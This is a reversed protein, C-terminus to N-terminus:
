SFLNLFDILAKSKHAFGGAQIHGGGGNAKCIEGVNIGDKRSRLSYSSGTDIVYIEIDPYKEEMKEFLETIYLASFVFATKYTRDNFTFETLNVHSVKEECYNNVKTKFIKLIMKDLETFLLEKEVIPKDNEDLKFLHNSKLISLKEISEDFHNDFEDKGLANFLTNLEYASIYNGLVNKWDWTDFCEIDFCLHNLFTNRKLLNYHYMFDLTLSTGSPHGIVDFLNYFETSFSDTPNEQACIAFSYENLWSATGHHDLLIFKDKIDSDEICKATEEDCSIDTIFYLDYVNEEFAKAIAKHMYNNTVHLITLNKFYQKLVIVPGSGDMDNHTILLVNANKDLNRGDFKKFLESRTM